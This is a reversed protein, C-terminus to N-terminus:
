AARAEPTEPPASIRWDPALQLKPETLAQLKELTIGAIMEIVLLGRPTM